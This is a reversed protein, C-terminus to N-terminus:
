DSAVGGAQVIIKRWKALLRLANQEEVADGRERAHRLIQQADEQRAYVAELLEEKTPLTVATEVSQTFCIPCPPSIRLSLDAWRCLTEAHVPHGKLRRASQVASTLNNAISGHLDM